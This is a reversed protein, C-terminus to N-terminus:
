FTATVRAVFNRGMGPNPANTKLHSLYDAWDKDLANRLQFDFALSRGASSPVAFGAGLNVLTYSAPHYGAGGFADAFFTAEAPNLRTQKANSEGGVFFYPNLLGGLKGGELRALYTARFPPMSPLAEHTSKNEGRVYDATGQLHLYATPHFELQAEIGSLLADGQTVNYIQLGSASDTTGTPVTYIFNQISNAFGGIEGVASGTQFRLSLDTNLSTETTLNPNGIEFTATAEHPGNAFLDFGSPARFGRGVNLVLAVPESVHYLLGANGTVSSWNLNAAGNGLTTDADAKLTRYDYRAGISLNWRGVGRQAFGYLAAGGTTSNPMLHEDGFNDNTAHEGSAGVVGAWSASSLHLRVDTTYAKERMGFAAATTTADDYESRRNTEYGATWDLRSSGLGATLDLHARDDDTRAYGTFASDSDTLQLRDRRMTYRGTLMGWPTHYALSGSGGSNHYGSNWLTYTPTKVENATRYTGTARFGLRGSAGELTASGDPQQNNSGYGGSVSGQAFPNRGIADPLDPEIINVVGGLADTGYLVSAPGRIVEIRSAAAPEVSSFHDDGWQNHELRQGDDVVLVRTNTLGRIAVKGTSEGSSNNRVGPLNSLADGLTNPHRRLIEEQDAVAVPQPSNMATTAEASASVQVPTLEIISPKLSLDFPVDADGVTMKRVEPRYAIMTFVLTYTGRPVQSFSYRGDDGTKTSRKAEVLQVTVQAIPKGDPDTVRGSISALDAYHAAPPRAGAGGLTMMILATRHLM